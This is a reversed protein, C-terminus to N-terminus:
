RETGVLAIRPKPGVTKPEEDRVLERLQMASAFASFYFVILVAGAAAVLLDRVLHSRQRLAITTLRHDHM